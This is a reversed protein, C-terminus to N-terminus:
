LAMQPELTEAEAAHREAVRRAGGALGHEGRAQAEAAEAEADAKARAAAQLDASPDAPAAAMLREAQAVKAELQGRGM